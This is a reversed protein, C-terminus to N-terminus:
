LTARRHQFPSRRRFEDACTGACVGRAVTAPAAPKRVSQMNLHGVGRNVNREHAEAANRNEQQAEAEDMLLTVLSASGHYGRPNGALEVATTLREGLKKDIVM